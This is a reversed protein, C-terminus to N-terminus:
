STCRIALTIQSKTYKYGRELVWILECLVIKNIYISQKQGEYSELLLSVLNAQETDDQTLHRVLINTDIGIM